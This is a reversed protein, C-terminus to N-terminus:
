KKGHSEEKRQDMWPGHHRAIEEESLRLFRAANHYLIDKKKEDSVFPAEEIVAISREIAEPWIVQDSRFMVRDGFRAEVIGRLYRYFAVRPQTFVIVGTDVYVQPLAYLVALLDDLM